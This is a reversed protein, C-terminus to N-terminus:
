ISLKVGLKETGKYARVTAISEDAIGHEEMLDPNVHVHGEDVEEDLIALFAFRHRGAVVIELKDTIGLQNAIRPNIKAKEPALSDDYKLRIRKERVQKQSAKLSSAPPIVALIDRISGRPRDPRVEEVAEGESHEVGEEEIRM